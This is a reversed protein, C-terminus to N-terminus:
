ARRAPASAALKRGDATALRGVPTGVPVTEGEAVLREAFVGDAEAEIDTAAKDTEVVFLLQGKSFAEGPAVKWELLLGESMTLGLKPMLLESSM